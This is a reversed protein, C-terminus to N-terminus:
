LTIVSKSKSQHVVKTLRLQVMVPINLTHLTAQSFDLLRALKVSDEIDLAVPWLLIGSIAITLWYRFQLVYQLEGATPSCGEMQPM